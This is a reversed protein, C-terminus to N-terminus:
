SSDMYTHSIQTTPPVIYILTLFTTRLGWKLPPTSFLSNRSSTIPLIHVIRRPRYWHHPYLSAHYISVTYLRRPGPSHCTYLATIYSNPSRPDCALSTATWLILIVLDGCAEIPSLTKVLNRMSTWQLVTVHCTWTLCTTRPLCHIPVYGWHIWTSWIM